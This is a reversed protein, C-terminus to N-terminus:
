TQNILRALRPVCEPDRAEVDTIRFLRKGTSNFWEDQLRDRETAEPKSHWYVEDFQIWCDHEPSYADIWWGNQYNQYILETKLENALAALFDIEATSRCLTLGRRLQFSIMKLNKKSTESRAIESERRHAKRGADSAVDHQTIYYESGYKEKCTLKRSADAVGGRKMALRHCEFGCYHRPKKRIIKINNKQEFTIGCQDCLLILYTKEKGNRSGEPVRKSEEIISM